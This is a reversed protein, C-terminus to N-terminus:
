KGTSAFTEIAFLEGEEMKTMDGNKVCPVSKGAHIKYADISHGCFNKIPKIRYTKGKIVVEYSEMVEQIAAGIDSLRVDIGAEKLGTETSEQAALLLEDFESNFAVTFATDIILGQVHTGFDIKCVDNEGLIRTDGPNPTFHAAVHNISLGTPFAIGCEIGTNNILYRNMNEINDAIDILKQGPKIFKQCYKRVQRQCEAAKRLNKINYIMTRELLKKEENNSRWTQDRYDLLQGVPYDENPFQEDIQKTPWNTQNWYSNTVPNEGEKNLEKNVQTEAEKWTGLIRFRSNDQYRSNTIISSDFNFKELYLEKNRKTAEERLKQKEEGDDEKKKKNKKKKKKPKDLDDQECGNNNINDQIKKEVDDILKTKTDFTMIIDDTNPDSLTEPNIHNMTQKKQKKVNSTAKKNDNIFDLLDDIDINKDVM